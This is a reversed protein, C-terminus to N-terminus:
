TRTVKPKRGGGLTFWFVAVVGAAIFFLTNAPFGLIMDASDSAAAIEAESEPAKPATKFTKGSQAAAMAAVSIALAATSIGVACQGLRGRM